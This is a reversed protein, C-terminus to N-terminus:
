QALEDGSALYERLGQVTSRALATLFEGRTERNRLPKEYMYAYEILMSPKTLTGSAGLAILSQNESPNPIEPKVNKKLERFVYQGIAASTKANPLQFEPIYLSFGQHQGPVNMNPRGSDNFHIHILLDVDNENAWKNIGYLQISTKKDVVTHAAGDPVVM